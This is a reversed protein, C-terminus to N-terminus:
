GLRGRGVCACVCWVIARWGGGGVGRGWQLQPVPQALAHRGEDVGEEGDEEGLQPEGAGLDAHQRRQSRPYRSGATRLQPNGMAAIVKLKCSSPCAVPVATSPLPVADSSNLSQLPGDGEQAQVAAM